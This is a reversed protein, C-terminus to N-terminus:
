LTDELLSQPPLSVNGVVLSNNPDIDTTFLGHHYM